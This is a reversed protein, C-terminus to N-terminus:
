GCFRCSDVAIFMEFTGSVAINFPFFGDHHSASVNEFYPDSSTFFSQRKVKSIICDFGDSSDIVM